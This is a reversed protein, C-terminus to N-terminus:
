LVSLILLTLVVPGELTKKEESLVTVYLLIRKSLRNKM